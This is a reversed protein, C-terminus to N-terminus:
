AGNKKMKAEQGGAPVQNLKTRGEGCGLLKQAHSETEGSDTDRM